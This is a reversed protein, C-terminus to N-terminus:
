LSHRAFDETSLFISVYVKPAVSGIEAPEVNAEGDLIFPSRKGNCSTIISDIHCSHVIPESNSHSATLFENTLCCTAYTPLGALYKSYHSENWKEIIRKAKSRSTIEDSQLPKLFLIEVMNYPWPLLNVLGAAQKRNSVVKLNNDVFCLEKATRKSYGAQSARWLLFQRFNVHLENNFSIWTQDSKHLIEKCLEPSLLRWLNPRLDCYIALKKIFLRRLMKYTGKNPFADRHEFWMKQVMQYMQLAEEPKQHNLEDTKRVSLVDEIWSELLERFQEKQM